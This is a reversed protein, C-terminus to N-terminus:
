VVVTDLEKVTFSATHVDESKNAYPQLAAYLSQYEQAATELAPYAEGYVQVIQRVSDIGKPDIFLREALYRVNGGQKSRLQYGFHQLGINDSHTFDLINTAIVDEWKEGKVITRHQFEYAFLMIKSLLWYADSLANDNTEFRGRNALLQAVVVGLRTTACAEQIANLENIRIGNFMNSLRENM